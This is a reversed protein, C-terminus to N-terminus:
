SETADPDQEGEVVATAEIEVLLDDLALSTVGLWTSAPMRGADFVRALGAHIVGAQERRYDKIYIGVRVVDASRAGVAALARALNGLAVEVQRGLDGAGIVNNDADAAVQGSVYITKTLGTHVVVIQSFSDAWNPLDSPNLHEKPM